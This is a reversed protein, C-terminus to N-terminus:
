RARAVSAAPAHRTLAERLAAPRAVRAFVEVAGDKGALRVTGYGLLRGWPGQVVGVATRTLPVEVIRPSLLGVRALVRRNTVAFESSRWRLVPPVFSVAVIVAAALWLLRVTEAALENRAIVLVVVGIVFAAFLTPSGFVVPHLRTRFVVAESPALHRDLSDM